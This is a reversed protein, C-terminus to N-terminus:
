REGGWLKTAVHDDKRLQAITLRDQAADEKVARAEKMGQESIRAARKAQALGTAEHKRHWIM